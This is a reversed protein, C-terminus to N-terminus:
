NQSFEEIQKSIQTMFYWFADRSASSAQKLNRVISFNQKITIGSLPISKVQGLLDAIIRSSFGIGLGRAVSLVIAESSSLSLFSNVSMLNFDHVLLDQNIKEYLWSNEPHLIFNENKIEDLTLEDQNALPHDLPTIINIKETTFHHYELCPNSARDENTIMFHTKGSILDDLATETCQTECSITVDPYEQHFSKFFKPLIYKGSEANCGVTIKGKIQGELSAMAEDICTSQRVFQRALPVLIKGADTLKLTRGQRVFLEEDFHQELVRIHQSVSPQSMHLHRAAQTFNMTEAAVLFINLQHADLM